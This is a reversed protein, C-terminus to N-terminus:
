ELCSIETEHLMLFLLYQFTTYVAFFCSERLRDREILRLLRDGSVSRTNFVTM